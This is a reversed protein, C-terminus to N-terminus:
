KETTSKDKLYERFFIFRYVSFLSVAVSSMCYCRRSEPVCLMVDGYPPIIRLQFERLYSNTMNEFLAMQLESSLFPARQAETTRQKKALM